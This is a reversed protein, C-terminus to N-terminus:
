NSKHLISNQQLKSVCQKLIDPLTLFNKKMDNVASPHQLTVNKLRNQESKILSLLKDINDIDEWPKYNKPDLIISSKKSEPKTSQTM